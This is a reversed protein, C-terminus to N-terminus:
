KLPLHIDTLLDEPAADLPTNRYIEYCPADAAERGSRPLWVGFLWDYSAPLEAYSGVHRLVAYTGGPLELRRLPPEIPTDAAVSRGAMSRCEAAPTLAADDFYVAVNSQGPAYLRRTAFHMHLEDFARNIENYPGRREVGALIMGPAQGIEVRRMQQEGERDPRRFRAHGGVARYRGPPMGYEDRFARGFAAVSAYGAAAAIEAIPRSGGCLEGAARNLRLRKVTAFVTEGHLGHYIRHWHHPSLCAIEALRAFDLEEDLHEYIYDRVRGLRAEYTTGSSKM